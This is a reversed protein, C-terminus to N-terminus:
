EFLHKDISPHILRIMSKIRQKGPLSRVFAHAHRSLSEVHFRWRSSTVLGFPVETVSDAIKHKFDHDGYGLDIKRIGLQAAHTAMELFLATGPSAERFQHDYTPFWYHLIGGDLLGYHSAVLTDGAYLASLLGRCGERYQWLDHLMTQAWPVGLIDFLFNRKYQERKWRVTQQFVAPCRCDIELRLPGCNKVLKKTKRRQKLITGSQQELFRVYGEPHQDLSAMFTKSRGLLYPEFSSANGALAHFRYAKFKTAKLLEAIDVPDIASSLMGHADNFSKGLPELVDRKSVECPLLGVVANQRSAVIMQATPRLKAATSIFRSSFFPSSYGSSSSRLSDWQTWLEDPIRDFSIVEACLSSAASEFLSFM